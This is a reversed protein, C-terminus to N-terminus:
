FEGQLSHMNSVINTTTVFFKYWILLKDQPNQGQMFRLLLPDMQAEKDRLQCTLQLFSTRSEENRKKPLGKLM